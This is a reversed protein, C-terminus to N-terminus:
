NSVSVQMWTSAKARTSTAPDFACVVAHLEGNQERVWTRAKDAKGVVINKSQLETIEGGANASVLGRESYWLALEQEDMYFDSGAAAGFPLVVGVSTFDDRVFYTKDTCVFFGAEVPVVLTIPSGFALFDHVPHHLGYAYSQSRFLLPGAAVLLRGKYHRVLGGAPMKHLDLTACEAGFEPTVAFALVAGVTRREDVLYAIEGNQTTMYTRIAAVREPFSEVVSSVVLRGREPVAISIKATPPSEEGEASVYTQLVQYVGGPLAGGASAELAPAAGPADLGLLRAGSQDIWWNSHGDTAVAWGDSAVVSVPRDARVDSRLVETQLQGEQEKILLLDAGAACIAMREGGWTVPWLSRANLLPMAQAYGQRGRLTGQATLDVNVADRVRAGGGDSDARM